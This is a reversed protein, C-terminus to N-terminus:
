LAFARLVEVFANIIADTVKRGKEASSKTAAGHIGSKNAARMDEIPWTLGNQWNLYDDQALEMRVVEPQLYLCASTEMECAHGWDRGEAISNLYATAPVFLNQLHVKCDDNFPRGPVGHRSHFERIAVDLTTKISGHINALIIKKFGNSYLSILIAVTMELFVMPPIHITGTYNSTDPAPTYCLAPLVLVDKVQRAALRCFQEAQLTDTSVPLHPGHEEISGSPIVLTVRTRDMAELEKWTYDMYFLKQGFANTEM